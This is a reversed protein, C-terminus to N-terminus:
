SGTNLTLGGKRVADSIPASRRANASPTMSMTAVSWAGCALWSLSVSHSLALGPMNPSCVASETTM